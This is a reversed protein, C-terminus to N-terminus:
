LQGITRNGAGLDSSGGRQLARARDLHHEVMTRADGLLNAIDTNKQQKEFGKIDSLAKSHGRVMTTLFQRDFKDGELRQLAALTRRGEADIDSTSSADSATTDGGMTRDTRTATAAAPPSTGTTRPSTVTGSITAPGSNGTGTGAPGTASNTLDPSPMAAPPVRDSVATDTGSPLTDRASASTPSPVIAFGHRSAFDALKKDAAQHSEVLEKGYARVPESAARERALAGLAIELANVKHLQQVAKQAARAEKPSLADGKGPIDHENLIGATASPNSPVATPLGAGNDGPARGKNLQPMSGTPPTPDATGHRLSDAAPDIRTPPTTPPPAALALGAIGLGLGAVLASRITKYM